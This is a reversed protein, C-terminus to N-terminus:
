NFNFTMNNIEYDTDDIADQIAELDNEPNEDETVEVNEDPTTRDKNGVLVFLGEHGQWPTISFTDGYESLLSNANGRCSVTLSKTLKNGSKTGWATDKGIIPFRIKDILQYKIDLRDEWKVGILNAASENLIYKNDTLTIQPEASDKAEEAMLLASDKKKDKVIEQKLPIYENTEPNYDFTIMMKVIM